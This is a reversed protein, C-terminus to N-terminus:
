FGDSMYLANHLDAKVDKINDDDEPYVKRIETCIDVREMGSPSNLHLLKIRGLISLKPKTDLQLM